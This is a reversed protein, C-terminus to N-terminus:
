PCPAFMEIASQAASIKRIPASSPQQGSPDRSITCVCARNRGPVLSTM